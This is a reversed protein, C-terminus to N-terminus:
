RCFAKHCLAAFMTILKNTFEPLVVKDSTMITDYGTCAVMTVDDKNDCKAIPSDALLNEPRTFIPTNTPGPMLCTLTM